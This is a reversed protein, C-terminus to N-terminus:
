CARACCTSASGVGGTPAAQTRPQDKVTNAVLM